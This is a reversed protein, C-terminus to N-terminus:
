EFRWRYLSAQPDCELCLSRSALFEVPLGGHKALYSAGGGGPPDSHNAMNIGENLTNFEIAVRRFNGSHTYVYLNYDDGPSKTQNIWFAITFEQGIERSQLKMGNGSTPDPVFEIAGTGLRSETQGVLAAGTTLAGDWDNGSYDLTDGDLPWYGAVGKVAFDYTDYWAARATGALVVLIIITLFVSKWSM